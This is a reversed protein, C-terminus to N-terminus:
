VAHTLDIPTHVCPKVKGSKQGAKMPCSHCFEWVGPNVSECDIVVGGIKNIFIPKSRDNAMAFIEHDPYKAHTLGLVAHVAFTAVGRGREEVDTYLSGVEIKDDEYEITLGVHGIFRGTERDFVIISRGNTFLATIEETTKTLMENEGATWAAVVPALCTDDPGAVRAIFQENELSYLEREMFFDGERVRLLKQSDPVPFNGATGGKNLM